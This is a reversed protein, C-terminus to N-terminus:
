ILEETMFLDFFDTKEKSQMNIKLGVEENFPFESVNNPEDKWLAQQLEIEQKKKASKTTPQTQNVNSDAADRMATPLTQASQCGGRTRLGRATFGGRTRARKPPRDFNEHNNEQDSTSLATTSEEPDIEEEISSTSYESASDGADIEDNSSESEDDCSGSSDDQMILEAAEEASFRRPVTASISTFIRNQTM